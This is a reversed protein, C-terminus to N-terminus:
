TINKSKILDVRELRALNGRMRLLTTLKYRPLLYTKEAKDADEASGFCM